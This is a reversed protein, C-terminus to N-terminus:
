KNIKLYESTEARETCHKMIELSTNELPTRDIFIMVLIMIEHKMVQKMLMVAKGTWIANSREHIFVVDNNEYRHYLEDIANTQM